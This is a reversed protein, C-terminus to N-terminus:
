MSITQSSMRIAPNVTAVNDNVTYLDWVGEDFGLEEIMADLCLSLNKGTHSAPFPAIYPTFRHLVWNKDVFHVTM